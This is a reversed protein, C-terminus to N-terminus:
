ESADMYMIRSDLEQIVVHPGIKKATQMTEQGWWGWGGVWEGLGLQTFKVKMM